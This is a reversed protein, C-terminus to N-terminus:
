KRIRELEKEIIKQVEKANEKLIGINNNTVEHTIEVFQEYDENDIKKIEDKAKKIVKASEATLLDDFYQINNELYGEWFVLYKEWRHRKSKPDADGTHVEGPTFSFALGFDIAYHKQSAKNLILNGSHFDGNGVLSNLFSAKAEIVKHKNESHFKSDRPLKNKFEMINASSGKNFGSTVYHITAGYRENYALHWDAEIPLPLLDTKYGFMRFAKNAHQIIVRAHLESLLDPLQEDLSMQKDFKTEPIGKKSRYVDVISNAGQEQNKVPKGFKKKDIEELHLLLKM